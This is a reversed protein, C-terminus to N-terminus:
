GNCSVACQIQNGGGCRCCAICDSTRACECCYRATGSLSNCNCANPCSTGVGDCTVGGTEYFTCDRQSAFCSNNGQCSVIIGSGCDLSATCGTATFVAEIQAAMRCQPESLGNDAEIFPRAQTAAGAVASALLAYLFMRASKM